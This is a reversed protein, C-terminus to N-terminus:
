SLKLRYRLASACMPPDTDEEMRFESSNEKESPLDLVDLRPSGEVM